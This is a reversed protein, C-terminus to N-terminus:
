GSCCHVTQMRICHGQNTSRAEWACILYPTQPTPATPNVKPRANVSFEGAVMVSLTAGSGSWAPQKTYLTRATTISRFAAQAVCWNCLAHHMTHM